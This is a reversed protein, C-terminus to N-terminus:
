AGQDLFPERGILVQVWEIQETSPFAVPDFCEKFFRIAHYQDILLQSYLPTVPAWPVSGFDPIEGPPLKVPEHGADVNILWLCYFCGRPLASFHM